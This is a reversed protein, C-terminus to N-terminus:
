GRSYPFFSRLLLRFSTASPFLRLLRNPAAEGVPWAAVVVPAGALSRSGRTAAGVRGPAGPASLHM